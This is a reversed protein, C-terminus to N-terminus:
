YKREGKDSEKKLKEFLRKKDTFSCQYVEASYIPRYELTYRDIFSNGGPHTVTITDEDLSIKDIYSWGSRYDWYLRFTKRDLDILLHKIDRDMWGPSKCTLAQEEAWGNSCLLLGAILIIKKM